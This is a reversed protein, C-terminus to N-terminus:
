PICTSIHIFLVVNVILSIYCREQRLKNAAYAIVDQLIGKFTFDAFFWYARVALSVPECLVWVMTGEASGVRLKVLDVADSSVEQGFNLELTAIALSAAFLYVGVSVDKLMLATARRYYEAAYVAGVHAM